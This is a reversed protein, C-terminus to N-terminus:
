SASTYEKHFGYVFKWIFIGWAHFVHQFIPKKFHSIWTKPIDIILTKYSKIM